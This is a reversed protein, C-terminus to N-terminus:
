ALAIVRLDKLRPVYAQNTSTMVIKIAFNTFAPINDSTFEFERYELNNSNFGLTTTKEVFKDPLGNSKNANIIQGLNNLNSYGPFPIFVQEDNTNNITYFARMDSFINVHAGVLIKISTSPNEISILKTVYQFATPDDLLSTSRGDTAYNSIVKNVRNSTTIINARSIDIVPSIREDMTVFDFAMIMSKSAPLFLAPNPQNSENVKSAIMRPSTFYNVKNLSIDEYGADVFSAESGSVSTATITRIKTTLNTGQPTFNHINPTLAEFQINQTANVATGGCSKTEKIFLDPYSSNTVRDLGTNADPTIKIYYYDLGIPESVTADSLTHNKNIRRLSIGNMEYKEVLTGVPYSFAKTWDIGRTSIGIAGSSTTSYSMIEDGVKVYGYNTTGVGVSEFSSFNDSNSVLMDETGSSSYEAVLKTPIVDSQINSISVVNASSHMGHNRHNVKIHYGDNVIELPSIPNVTGGTLENIYSTIGSANVFKMSNAAGVTIAGQVQDIILQNNASTVGVSFQANRGVKSIGITTIGLVDGVVYGQGTANITAAIAVSNLVTVNATAGRGSGTVTVLDVGTFTHQGSLPTYGVGANVVNLDGVASGAVGVLNGTFNTGQQLIPAGTLLNSDNISSGLSVRIKKSNAELPNALLEAIQNNGRTLDPNYFNLDGKNVFSARHLTFKLDEWQSADWTSANQSKFLSGLLPQESVVTQQGAPLSATRIDTEGVRSIWVNYEMTDALLVVAYEQGAELYVPADFTFTTLVSADDSINVDDPNLVIESFPLVKQTPYGQKVSRIQCTVPLVAGKSQFYVDLKTVFVGVDEAVIFSQALPDVQYDIRGLRTSTTSDVVTSSQSTTSETADRSENVIETEVRANRVSLITEQVTDLQGAAIYIEEAVTSVEGPVTSNNSAASLRFTKNGSNWQENGSINPDPIFFSGVLNGVNDTVLEVDTVVASARSTQGRLITGVKLGGYFDGQVQEALSYTDVNLLTSTSSYSEPVTIQTDVTDRDLYPTRTYVGVPANYPGTKHNSQAVRFRINPSAAAIGLSLGDVPLTGHVTEGVEFTGATMRIQVLKPFCHESVDIGDFFPYMRTYPKMRLARFEVNRSRVLAAVDSTVIRDGESQTDFTETVVQRAGSRGSIGTRTATTTTVDLTETTSTIETGVIRVDELVQGLLSGRVQGTRNHIVSQGQFRRVLNEFSWTNMGTIEGGVTNARAWNDGAAFRDRLQIAENLGVGRNIDATTESTQTVRDTRTAIEEGTWATQWSNWIIPGFGTQPDLGTAAALENITSAYNGEVQIVRAALRVQDAWTDSEPTLFITGEWFRILYPNLNEIRTGFPNKVWEQSTYHLTIIGKNKRVNTGNLDTTFDLDITPDAVTGLGIISNSGVLLNVATTYHAPRLESLDPDLSNKIGINKNQGGFTKFNDVYFGSKYRNLGNRDSIFTNATDTELLSLSTYYELNKIRNELNKIDVMRYRKYDLLNISAAKTNYLYPPLNVRAVELANDVTAPPEPVESPTGYKVQFVGEKTLYIRDIRPLYFSYSLIISEDSALINAASNGSQTFVRGDFEFPSRVGEAVTYDSVRPRIDILDSNKHVGIFPIAEYEFNKYSDVTTIDGTDSSAYYGYAYYVKIKRNPATQDSKRILRGYDYFSYRQGNDFTFKNSINVSNESFDTVVGEIGSEDFSITEGNVFNTSNVLIYDISTANVYEIYVALAGSTKGRVIEGVILDSTSGTPGTLSGITLRPANPDDTGTSEYVAYVNVVDPVNLCIEEDQVRTGYPYTGYKLGNNVTTTGIGANSHISKDLIISKARQLNKVKETVNSKTLTATLRANGDTSLGKITLTKGGSSGFDLQDAALSETAGTPTLILTYREEDFSQFVENTGATVSCEGSAITVGYQRRINLTSTTLNVNSVNAKPLPTYLANESTQPYSKIIQVNEFKTETSPVQGDCIGTVTAIGTVEFTSIGVSAVRLFTDTSFGTRSCRIIDNEKLNTSILRNSTTVTSFGTPTNLGSVTAQGINFSPALLPDAVFTAAVGAVSQYSWLSKVDSNSYETIATAVRSNDVGNIILQENPVFSGERQYLVLSASSSVANRLYATAGSSKGQVFTPVSFTGPENVTIKTYTQVDYLSIDWQNEQPSSTDYSGSELAFDYVRAVGIEEGAAITSAVGTRQNRLSVIATTGIGINPSGYVNNLTLSTGTTYNVSQNELTKTTRPKKVDLFTPALTEVEYGRVSAKGPSIQYVALDDSPTNGAYTTQDAKFIGDGLGNKLSEKCDINFPKIYYDGSEDYTRRAIEDALINYETTNKLSQIIGNKITSLEIFNQDNFDDIDKKLLSVTVKLRDAGPAAYNNFGQANDGLSGDVDASIIEENVLFGVRCSPNNTYQDLVISEDNVDVFYGRVFYVGNSISFISSTSNCNNAITAAFGEGASIYSSGFSLTDDVTLIESDAFQTTTNDVTSTSIYSIYLTHTNRESKEASIVKDVTAQINTTAGTIKKGVLNDLYLSVPLGAFDDEIQIASVNNSYSTQGPIIKAGDKFFHSGFQEIQNQLISQLGTLERAQVPFGPKFLVKYYDKDKGGITPENYDDFYPSVNLNTEQPM